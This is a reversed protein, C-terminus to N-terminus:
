FSEKQSFACSRPVYLVHMGQDFLIFGLPAATFHSLAKISDSELWISVSHAGRELAKEKWGEMLSVRGMKEDPLAWM